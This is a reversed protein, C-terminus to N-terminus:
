DKNGNTRPINPNPTRSVSVFSPMSSSAAQAFQRVWIYMFTYVQLSSAWESVGAIGANRFRKTDASEAGESSSCYTCTVKSSDAAVFSPSWTHMEIFADVEHYTM